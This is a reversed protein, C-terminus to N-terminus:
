ILLRRCWWRVCNLVLDTEKKLRGYQFGLSIGIFKNKLWNDDDGVRQCKSVASEPNSHSSVTSRGWDQWQAVAIGRLWYLVVPVPPFRERWKVVERLFIYMCVWMCVCKSWVNMVNKLFIVNFVVKVNFLSPLISCKSAIFMSISILDFIIWILTVHHTCEQLFHVVQVQKRTKLSQVATHKPRQKWKLCINGQVCNIGASYGHEEHVRVGTPLHFATIVKIMVQM